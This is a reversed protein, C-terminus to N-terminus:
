SSTSGHLSAATLGSATTFLLRSCSVPGVSGMQICNKFHKEMNLNESCGESAVANRKVKNILFVLGLSNHPITSLSLSPCDAPQRNRTLHPHGYQM